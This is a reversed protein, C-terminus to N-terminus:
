RVVITGHMFPHPTCHYSFTGIRNFQRSFVQSPRMIGSDWQEASASDATTSHSSPGVFNWVVTSGRPIEVMAPSFEFDRVTVTITQSPLPSPTAGGGGGSPRAGCGAMLLAGALMLTWRNSM